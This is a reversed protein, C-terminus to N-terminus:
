TNEHEGRQARCRLAARLAFRGHWNCRSDPFAESALKVSSIVTKQGNVQALMRDMAKNLAINRETAM